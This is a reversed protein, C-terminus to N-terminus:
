FVNYTASKVASVFDDTTPISMVTPKESDYDPKKLIGRRRLREVAGARLHPLEIGLNPMGYPHTMERAHDAPGTLGTPDAGIIQFHRPAAMLSEAMQKRQVEKHVTKLVAEPFIAELINKPVEHSKSTFSLCPGGAQSKACFCKQVCGKPGLM